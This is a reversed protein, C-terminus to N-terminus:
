KDLEWKTQQQAEIRELASFTERKGLMNTISLCLHVIEQTLTPASHIYLHGARNHQAWTEKSSPLLAQDPMQRCIDCGKEFNSFGSLQEAGVWSCSTVWKSDHSPPFFGLNFCIKALGLFLLFPSILSFPILKSIEDSVKSLPPMEATNREEGARLVGTEM